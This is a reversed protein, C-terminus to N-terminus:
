GGSSSAPPRHPSYLARSGGNGPDHCLVAIEYRGPRLPSLVLSYHRWILGGQRDPVPIALHSGPEIEALPQGDARTREYARVRPTLQRLGTVVLPLPGDGLTPAAPQSQLWQQIRPQFEAETYRPTIHQPCNWEFAEVTILVGREVRARYAPVELQAVRDPEDKEHVIHVRGWIKLRRRQAYDMLILAVRDNANLNGVSLYQRNGRFDAYGITKEDLVRLFGVPGGRFQVYPWENQSVTAQYFGDRGLIFAVEGPGLADCRQDDIEFCRNAQRSNYSNGSM